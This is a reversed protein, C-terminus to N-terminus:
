LSQGAALSLSQHIRRVGRRDKLSSVSFVFHSDSMSHIVSKIGTMDVAALDIRSRAVNLAVKGRLESATLKVDSGNVSMAVDVEGGIQSNEIVVRSEHIVVEKIRAKNIVVGSCNEITLKTYLGTFMKGREGKCSASAASESVVDQVDRVMGPLKEARLFSMLLSNFKDSRERMPVHGAGDIVELNVNRIRYKLVQATRLPAIRDDSGWILLTPTVLQELPMSFDYDVLEIGARAKEDQEAIDDRFWSFLNEFKEIVKVIYSEAKDTEKSDGYLSSAIVFKGLAIRHLIGAVDVLVLRRVRHPHQAAYLLAIAGGMSHGVLDFRSLQYHGVIFDLLAVYREPTYRKDGQGSHGFGPLDVAVVRYHERLSNLQKTWDRSANDGIGHVLLITHSSEHNTQYTCVDAQFIPETICEETLEVASVAVSSYLTFFPLIWIFYRYSM